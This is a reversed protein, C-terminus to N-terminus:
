EGNFFVSAILKLTAGILARRSTGWVPFTDFVIWDILLAFGFFWGVCSLAGLGNILTPTAWAAGATQNFYIVQLSLGFGNILTHQQKM